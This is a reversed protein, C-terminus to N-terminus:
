LRNLVDEMNTTRLFNSWAREDFLKSLAIPKNDEISHSAEDAPVPTFAVGERLSLYWQIAADKTMLVRKFYVRCEDNITQPKARTMEPPTVDHQGSWVNVSNGVDTKLPYYKKLYVWKSLERAWDLVALESESM